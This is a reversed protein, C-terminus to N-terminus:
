TQSWEGEGKLNKALERLRFRLFKNWCSLTETIESTVNESKQGM